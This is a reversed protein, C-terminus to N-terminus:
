VSVTKPKLTRLYYGTYDKGTQKGTTMFRSTEQDMREVKGDWSDMILLDKETLQAPDSISNRFGVVTVFHRSTGAKNGNVQMVVPRGQVIESYIKNLVDSKNDSRFTEFSSAHKYNGADVATDSTVGNYLDYAHVYSFALCAGGYKDTDSNQSIKKSAVVKEYDPVSVATTVVTWDDGLANWKSTHEGIKPLNTLDVVGTGTAHDGYNEIKDVNDKFTDNIDNKENEKDWKDNIFFKIDGEELTNDMIICRVKSGDKMTFEVIDGVSGLVSACAIMFMGGYLAYGADNYEIKQLLELAEEDLKEKDIEIHEVAKIETTVDKVTVEAEAQTSPATTSPTVTSSSSSSSVPYYGGTYSSGTSYSGSYSNGSTSSSTSTQKKKAEAEKQAKEESSMFQTSNQLTTHSASVSDIYAGTNQIKIQLADINGSIMSKASSFDFEECSTDYSSVSSSLSDLQNSINDLSSKASGLEDTDVSFIAM